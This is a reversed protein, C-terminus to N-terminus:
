KILCNKRYAWSLPKRLEAGRWYYGGVLPTIFIEDTNSLCSSYVLEMGGDLASQVGKASLNTYVMFGVFTALQDTSLMKYQNDSIRWLADKIIEMKDATPTQKFKLLILYSERKEKDFSLYM